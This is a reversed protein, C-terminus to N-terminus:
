QNIARQTSVPFDRVKCKHAKFRGWLFAEAEIPDNSLERPTFFKFECRQCMALSPTKRQHKIVIFDQEDMPTVAFARFRERDEM